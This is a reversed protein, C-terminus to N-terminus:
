ATLTRQQLGRPEPPASALLQTQTSSHQLGTGAPKHDGILRDLGRSPSSAHSVPRLWASQLVHNCTPQCGARLPVGSGRSVPVELSTSCLAPSTLM